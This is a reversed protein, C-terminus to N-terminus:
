TNILEFDPLRYKLETRSLFHGQRSDSAILEGHSGQRGM